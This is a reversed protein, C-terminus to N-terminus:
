SLMKTMHSGLTGYIEAKKGTTDITYHSAERNRVKDAWIELCMLFSGPTHLRGESERPM